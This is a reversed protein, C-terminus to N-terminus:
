RGTFINMVQFSTPYGHSNKAPAEDLPCLFEKVQTMRVSEYGAESKLPYGSLKVYYDPDSHTWGDWKASYARISAVIGRAKTMCGQASVLAQARSFSPIGLVVLLLITLLGLLILTDILTLGSESYRKM